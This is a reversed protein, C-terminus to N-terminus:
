SVIARGERQGGARDVNGKILLKIRGSFDPLFLLLGLSADQM